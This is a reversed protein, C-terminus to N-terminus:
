ALPRNGLAARVAREVLIPVFAQIRAERFRAREREVLEHVSAAGVAAFDSSLRAELYM